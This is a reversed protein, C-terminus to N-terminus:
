REGKKAGDSTAKPTPCLAFPVSYKKMLLDPNDDFMYFVEFTAICDNSVSVLRVQINSAVLGEKCLSYSRPSVYLIDCSITGSLITPRTVYVYNCHSEKEIFVLVPGIMTNWWQVEIENETRGILCCRGDNDHLYVRKEFDGDYDNARRVVIRWRGDSSETDLVAIEERESLSSNCTSILLDARLCLAGFFHFQLILLCCFIRSM